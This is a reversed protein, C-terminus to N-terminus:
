LESWAGRGALFDDVKRALALELPLGSLVGRSLSPPIVLWVPHASSFPNGGNGWFWRLGLRPEGDWSMVVIAWREEVNKFVVAYPGGVNDRPSRISLINKDNTLDVGVGGM